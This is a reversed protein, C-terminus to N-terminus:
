SLHQFRGFSTFCQVSFIFLLLPSTIAIFLSYTLFRSAFIVLKHPARSSTNIHESTIVVAAIAVKPIFVFAPTFLILALVIVIGCFLGQAQTRAGAQAAVATASFSAQAPLAGFFSGVINACGSSFMEQNPFLRHTYGNKQSYVKAVAILELFGLFTILVVNGAQNSITSASITPLIPTPMGQPVNGVLKWPCSGHFKDVLYSALTLLFIAVANRITSLNKILMSTPFYKPLKGLGM